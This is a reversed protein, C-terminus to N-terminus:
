HLNVMKLLTLELAFEGNQTLNIIKFLKKTSPYYLYSNNKNIFLNAEANKFKQVIEPSENISLILNLNIYSFVSKNKYNENVKIGNFIFAQNLLEQM